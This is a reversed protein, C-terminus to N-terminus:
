GEWLARLAAFTSFMALIALVRRIIRKGSGTLATLTALVFMTGMLVGAVIRAWFQQAELGRATLFLIAAFCLAALSIVLLVQRLFKGVSGAIEGVGEIGRVFGALMMLIADPNRVGFFTARPTATTRTLRRFARPILYALAPFAFVAAM